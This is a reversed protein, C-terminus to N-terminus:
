IPVKIKLVAGEGPLSDIDMSGGFLPMREEMGLLGLGLPQNIDLSSRNFRTKKM